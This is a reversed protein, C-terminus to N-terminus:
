AAFVGGGGAGHAHPDVASDSPQWTGSVPWAAPFSAFTSKLSPRGRSGLSM